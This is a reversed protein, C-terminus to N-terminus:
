LNKGHKKFLFLVLSLVLMIGFIVAEKYRSNKLTTNIVSIRQNGAKDIARVFIKKSLSQDSLPYPSEARRYFGWNGEKVEYRDIGSIKDQTSFVLFYKGEFVTPDNTISPTFNEPPEYDEVFEKRVKSDGPEILVATPRALVTIETGAGDNELIRIRELRIEAQGPIKAEFLVSLLHNNPGSFGGPTIGSFLLAGGSELHPREAWFNVVSGGDNIELVELMNEPFVLRGEVANLLSESQVIVDMIFQEGSKVETKHSYLRVEASSAFIFVPTFFLIFLILITRFISTM